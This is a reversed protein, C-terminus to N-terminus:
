LPPCLIGIVRRRALSCEKGNWKGNLHFLQVDRCSITEDMKADPEVGLKDRSLGHM